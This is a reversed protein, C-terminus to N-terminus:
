SDESYEEENPAYVLSKFSNFLSPRDLKPIKNDSDWIWRWLAQLLHFVCLLLIVSSWVSKLANRESACDDTMIIKPGVAPGRHFFAKEPLISKLMRLASEITGEDERSTIM